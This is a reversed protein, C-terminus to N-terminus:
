AWWKGAVNCIGQKGDKLYFVTYTETMDWYLMVWMKKKGGGGGGGFLFYNHLGIYHLAMGWFWVYRYWNTYGVADYLYFQKKIALSVVLCISLMMDANQDM